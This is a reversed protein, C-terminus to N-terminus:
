RTPSNAVRALQRVIPHDADAVALFRRLEAEIPEAESWRGLARLLDARKAQIALWTGPDMTDIVAMKLRAARELVGLAAERNGTAEYARALSESACLFYGNKPQVTVVTELQKIVDPHRVRALMRGEAVISSASLEGSPEAPLLKLAVERALAPDWARYVEGFAGRGVRGRLLFPGWTGGDHGPIAASPDASARPTDPVAAHDPAASAAERHLRAVGEVIRFEALLGADDGGSESAAADWNVPTGDAVNGALDDIWRSDAAV